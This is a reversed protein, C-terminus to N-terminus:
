YNLYLSEEAKETKNDMVKKFTSNGSEIYLHRKYLERPFDVTYNKDGRKGDFSLAFKVERKNLKELFQLFQDFDIRGYYRGNTHFYPPDLYVFDRKKVLSLISQYDKSTFITNQIVESWNSLVGRLKKPHIGKRTYHLSNNFEGNQNFRILGNVCTRTLFLL